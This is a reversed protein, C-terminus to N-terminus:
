EGRYQGDNEYIMQQCAKGRATDGKLDFDKVEASFTTPFTSADFFTTKAIGSAGTMLGNWFTEVDHAIPCLIGLGTIVVRNNNKQTMPKAM